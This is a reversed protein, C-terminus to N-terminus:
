GLRAAAVLTAAPLRAAAWADQGLQALAAQMHRLGVTYIRAPTGPPTGPEAAYLWDRADEMDRDSLDAFEADLRGPEAMAWGPDPADPMHARYAEIDAIKALGELIVCEAVSWHPIHRWRLCHHLEHVVCCRVIQDLEPDDLIAIDLGFSVLHPGTSVANVGQDHGFDTPYLLIDVDQLDARARVWAMGDRAAAEIMARRPGFAGGRDHLHLDLSLGSDM